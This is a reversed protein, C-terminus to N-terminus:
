DAVDPKIPLEISFTTGKHIKSSFSISGNHADIIKKSIALGLGTGSSKTSFNPVFIRNKDEEAIGKGKDSITVLVTQSRKIAKLEITSHDPDSAEIGNKLLNIIVRRIEDAVCYITLDTQQFQTTITVKEDHNYLETVSLLLKKLDVPTFPERIPKSFKSFDSAIKNLSEIQEIINAATKEIKPRLKLVDDPNAELQRQLHQLNLKMPTLPNKIEHAVQQAMEQWASEREAKILEKRAEDLRIVMQNYALALSGIEDKSSINIKTQREGQSIKNLGRQIIQLPRTLRNSLAVSGIIFLTFLALYIAFLYSTTELLQETYIPSQVFTPIAIVGIPENNDNLIARFGILLTESGLQVKRVVHRRERNYLFEYVDYPLIKPLLHQQFIQPTTSEEVWVNKYFIADVNLPSTLEALPIFFEDGNSFDATLRVSEGLNKLEYVLERQLNSESQNSVAYQTAFILVTLFLFTALTLGDILRHQFRKSQGFLRFKEFGLISLIGMTFLGFFVLVILLRFYSFLHNNFAPRPTSVKIINREGTKLLVERFADSSTITTLYAISDELAINREIDSLRNYEPQDTYIGKTASRAVRNGSFEAMYFSKKWEEGTAAALVARIPQNFDPREQYVAGFIWALISTPNNIDYIPIWGRHFSRYDEGIGDPRGWIVPRNTEMRIQEGRHSRLMLDTDFLETWAPSDLSTSYDSILDGDPFLLKVDFTFRQWGPNIKSQIVQQFRSRLLNTNELSDNETLPSLQQELDTLLDRLITRGDSDQEESYEVAVDLLERDTRESTTNWIIVYIFISALFMSIMMKRFGSTNSFYKPYYAIFWATFIFVFYLLLITLVQWLGFLDVNLFQNSLFAFFIFSFTTSIFILIAKDEELKFLFHGISICIGAAALLFVTTSIYYLFSNIYPILELDLLPITTEVTLNQTSTVFFILILFQLIGYLLSFLVGQLQLKNVGIRTYGKLANFTVLFFLSLFVAHFIYDGLLLQNELREVSGENLYIDIWSHILGSGSITFWAIALIGIQFLIAVPHNKTVSFIVFVFFLSAFIAIHFFIRWQSVWSEHIQQYSDLDDYKSFVVGASDAVSTSLTRYLLPEDPLPDFFSYSVPYLKQLSSHSALDFAINETFPLNTSQELKQATLLRYSTDGSSFSIEGLLFSVNNSRLVSTRVSDEQYTIFGPTVTLNFGSWSWPQDDKYLVAGWFDYNELTQYILQRSQESQLRSQIQDSLEETEESLDSKLNEYVTEAETLSEHILQEPNDLDKIHSREVVEFVGYGLVVISFITLSIALPNKLFSKM